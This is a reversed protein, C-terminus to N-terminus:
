TSQSAFNVLYPVLQYWFEPIDSQFKYVSRLGGVMVEVRVGNM